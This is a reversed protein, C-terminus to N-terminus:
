PCGANYSAIYAAVDFFNLSGFPAALDAAPDGANFLAIYAALDFFNLVGFPEALDADCGAAGLTGDANVIQAYIDEDGNRDDSWTVLTRGDADRNVNLRGKSSAATSVPIAAGTLLVGSEDAILMELTGDTNGLVPQRDVVAAAGTAHAVARPPGKFQGNFPLLAVGNTGLMRAGTTGDFRQLNTSQSSQAGDLNRFFMMIDGSPAMAIAPDLQQRGPESSAPLGNAAFQVAGAPSIRQVYSDFDGDRTDHWAVVAGDAGDNLIRPKHAIPVSTANSVIIPSGGWQMAGSSDFKQAYVHRPSLFSAINRIWAILLGNDSTPVMELFAPEETGSSYILVGNGAFAKVGAPSIRQMVLGPNVDFRPWVVAYDGGSLQTIRPDAEFEANDSVTVGDPGWLSTGDPAILYAYVDNDGGARIDVFALVCNGDADTRLDWDVVSTGQPNDSVILGGPGFTPSGDANLRQVRMQVNSQGFDFWGTWSSGDPAVATKVVTQNGARVVVPTNDAPNDTWQAQAQGCALLLAGALARAAFNTRM